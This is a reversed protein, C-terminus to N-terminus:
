LVQLNMAVNVLAYLRAREQALDIHEIGGYEVEQLGVKINDEWKHRPSGLPRNGGWRFGMHVGICALAVGMKNKLIQDGSYYKTLM